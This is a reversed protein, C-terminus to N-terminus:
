DDVSEERAIVPTIDYVIGDEVTQWFSCWFNQGAEGVRPYRGGRDPPFKRCEM